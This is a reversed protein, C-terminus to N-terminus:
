HASGSLGINQPSNGANDKVSLTGKFIGSTLPHFTVTLTCSTFAAVSNGCGTVSYGTPVDFASINLVKNRANTLKVTKGASSGVPHVGFFLSKPSLVVPVFEYAGMDVIATPGGNGNIIRPNGVLDETPLGLAANDGVDIAPSGGKLRYGLGLLPDKSINGDQGTDGACGGAYDSGKVNLVDNHRFSPAPGNPLNSADCDVAAGTGTGIVINDEFVVYDYFGTVYIGSGNGSALVTNGIITNSTVVTNTTRYQGDPIELDIGGGYSPGHNGVILNQIILPAGDNQMLVGTSGNGRIINNEVLPIGAIWLYVGEGGNNAITNSILQVSGLGFQTGQGYLLVGSALSPGCSTGNASSTSLIANFQILPAGYYVGIGCGYNRIIVNHEITPSSNQVLIGGWSGNQITFGDLVSSNGENSIFSVVETIQGGDIVTKSAGAESKVTIVKGNFNINEKYTGPAVLVIDGSSAADIGAQVTPQDAPVHITKAFVFTATLTSILIVCSALQRTM